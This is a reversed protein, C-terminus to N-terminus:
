QLKVRDVALKGSVITLKGHLTTVGTQIGFVDDYGGQLTISRGVINLPESFTIGRAKIFQGNQVDAIASTLSEYPTPGTTIATGIRVNDIITGAFSGAITHDATINSITYRNNSVTSLKDVANDSLTALHYGSSPSITCVSTNGQTVPSDCSISGNGGVVSSGIIYTPVVGTGTLAVDRIPNAADNTTIRLTTSKAGISTPSFSASVICNGNTAITTSVGCTGGSGNGVTLTFMGSDGGVLTISSVSLGATGSNSITFKLSPSTSNTAASGFDRAAPSVSVASKGLLGGRVPWVANNASKMNYDVFGEHMGVGWAKTPNTISTSSSWYFVAQANNFGQTNLWDASNSQGKNVLSELENINPLRWDNHGLYSNSNRSNIYDLAQQWNKTGSASNGDRAWVLGTMSDTQTLDGNDVFRSGPWSIGTLVDGDQGTNPCAILAGAAAYCLTQGTKPLTSADFTGSQGSRVPWVYYTSAKEGGATYGDRVDVVWASDTFTTFTSSSWYFGNQINVFGHTNLWAATNPQQKIIISELENRNPLRWDNHGLYNSLNLGKVYDLAQQWTRPGATLNGNKAWILGTLNDSATLNSASAISNDTFRNGTWATGAQREGDEGTGSCARSVGNADSCVTLGTKSLNVAGTQGGRVPWVRNSTIKTNLNVFGDQMGVGWAQAAEFAFTTSSWYFSGGVTIFGQTNLWAATNSLGKNTLSELENRNPLRWDNHGLYNGSNLSKIYDLAEQWTGTFLNGNKAWVLGTLNDSVTMNSSMSISNDTFRPTSWTTGFRTDGDQGTDACAIAAGTTDYCTTQGTQPITMAGFTGSSPSRVPWVYHKGTKDAASIYGDNMAVLWALDTFTAYTSSSWYLDPQVNNFRQPASLWDLMFQQQPNVLSALENRNPLRWDNHGLYNSSNLSKIFDLAEQWTKTGAALNGDKAWILGTLNDTLTLEGPSAISNDTFRALPWSLGNMTEGDQGTGACSIFGGAADYCSSQGTRPLQITAANAQPILCSYYIFLVASLLVLVRPM